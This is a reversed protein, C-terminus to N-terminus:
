CSVTYFGNVDETPTFVIEISSMKFKRCSSHRSKLTPKESIALRKSYGFQLRMEYLLEAKLVRYDTNIDRYDTYYPPPKKTILIRKLKSIISESPPEIYQQKDCMSNFYKIRRLIRQYGNVGIFQLILQEKLLKLNITLSHSQYMLKIIETIMISEDDRHDNLWDSVFADNKVDANLSM